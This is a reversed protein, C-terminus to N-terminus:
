YLAHRDYDIFLSILFIFFFFFLMIFDYAGCFLIGSVYPFLFVLEVDYLLFFVCILLFQIPLQIPKQKQPKFGCEYFDKRALKSLGFRAILNKFSFLNIVNYIIIALIIVTTYNVFVEFDGMYFIEINPM